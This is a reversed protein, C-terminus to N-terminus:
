QPKMYKRQTDTALIAVCMMKVQDPNNTRATKLSRIGNRADTIAKQADNKNPEYTHDYDARQRSLYLRVFRTAFERLDSDSGRTSWPVKGEELKDCVPRAKGHEVLRRANVKAEGRYPRAVEATLATFLSYYATSISRRIRARSPTGHTPSVLFEAAGLLAEPTM